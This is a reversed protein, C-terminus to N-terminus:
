NELSNFVLLLNDFKLQSFNKNPVYGYPQKSFLSKFEKANSYNLMVEKAKSRTILLTRSTNNDMKGDYAENPNFTSRIIPTSTIKITDISTMAFTQYAVYVIDRKVQDRINSPAEQPLFEKSVRVHSEKGGFYEINKGTYDGAADLMSLVDNYHPFPIEEQKSIKIPDSYKNTAENESCGAFFLVAFLLLPLKM